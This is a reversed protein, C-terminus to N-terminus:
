WCTFWPSCRVGVTVQHCTVEDVPAKGPEKEPREELPIGTSLYFLLYCGWAQVCDRRVLGGVGGGREVGGVGNNESELAAPAQCTPLTCQGSSVGTGSPGDGRLGDIWRPPEGGTRGKQM